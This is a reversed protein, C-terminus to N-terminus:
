GDDWRPFRCKAPVTRRMASPIKGSDADPAECVVWISYVGMLTFSPQQPLCGCCGEQQKYCFSSTIFGSSLVRRIPAATMMQAMKRRSNEPFKGPLSSSNRLRGWTADAMTKICVPFTMRNESGVTGATVSVSGCIIGATMKGAALLTNCCIGVIGALKGTKNREM